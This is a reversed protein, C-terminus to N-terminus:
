HKWCLTESAKSCDLTARAFEPLRPPKNPIRWFFRTTPSLDFHQRPCREIPASLLKLAM